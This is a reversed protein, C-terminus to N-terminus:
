AEIWQCFYSGKTEKGIFKIQYQENKELTISLNKEENKYFMSQFLIENKSNVVQIELEGKKVVVDFKLNTEITANSHLKVFTEGDYNVYSAKTYSNGNSNRWKSDKVSESFYTGSAQVFQNDVYAVRQGFVKSSFVLLSMVLFLIFKYM